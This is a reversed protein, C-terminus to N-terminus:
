GSGQLLRFVNKSAIGNFIEQKSVPAIGFGNDAVTFLITITSEDQKIEETQISIKGSETFKVANSILNSLVQRVRNPDGILLLYAKDDVQVVQRYTGCGTVILLAVVIM